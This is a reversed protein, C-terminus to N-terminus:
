DDPAALYGRGFPDGFNPVMKSGLAKHADLLAAHELCTVNFYAAVRSAPREDQSTAGESQRAVLGLKEIAEVHTFNNDGIFAPRNIGLFKVDARVM